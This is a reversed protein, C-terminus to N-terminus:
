FYENFTLKIYLRVEGRSKLYNKFIQNAWSLIDEYGYVETDL